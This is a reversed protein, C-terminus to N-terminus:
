SGVFFSFSVTKMLRIWTHENEVVKWNLIIADFANRNIFFQLIKSVIDTIKAWLDYRQSKRLKLFFHAIDSVFLSFKRGYLVFMLFIDRYAVCFIKFTILISFEEIFAFYFFSYRFWFSVNKTFDLYKGFFEKM